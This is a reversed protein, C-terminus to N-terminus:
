ASSTQAAMSYDNLKSSMESCGNLCLLQLVSGSHQGELCVSVFDQRSSLCHFMSDVTYYSPKALALAHVSTQQRPWRSRTQRLFFLYLTAADSSYRSWTWIGCPEGWGVVCCDERCWLCGHLVSCPTSVSLAALLWGSFCLDMQSTSPSFCFLPASSLTFPTRQQRSLIIFHLIM